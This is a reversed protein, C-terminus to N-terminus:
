ESKKIQSLTKVNCSLKWRYRACSKRQIHQTFWYSYTVKLLIYSGEIECSRAAHFNRKLRSKTCSHTKIKQVIKHCSNHLLITTAEWLGPLCRLLGITLDSPGLSCINIDTYLKHKYISNLGDFSPWKTTCLLIKPFLSSKRVWPTNYWQSIVKNCYM